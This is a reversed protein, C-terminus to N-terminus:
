HSRVGEPMEGPGVPVGDLDTMGASSTYPDSTMSSRSADPSDALLSGLDSDNDYRVLDNPEGNMRLKLDNVASRIKPGTLPSTILWWAAAIMAGVAVLGAIPLIPNTRKRIPMRDTIQKPLEVKSLDFDPLDSRKPLRVDRAASMIDERNMDRFSDPLKFEPLKVEPLNIDPM